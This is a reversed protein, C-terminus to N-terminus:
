RNQAIDNHLGQDSHNQAVPISVHFTTGKEEASDFWIRGGHDEVVKKVIYLGVGSGTTIKRTANAARFFRDFIKSQEAAPIGIGSDKVEFQIITNVKMASVHVTSGPKSYKIANDILNQFVIRIKDPDVEAFLTDKQIGSTDVTIHLSEAQPKLDKLTEAIITHLNTKTFDYRTKDQNLIDIDLLDNIISIVRDNTSAMQDLIEKQENNIPGIEGKLMMDMSWKIGSLPTRLQHAAVSIFESKKEDLLKLDEYAEQLEKTREEVKAELSQNLKELEETKLQVQQELEEKSLRSIWDHFGLVREPIIKLVTSTLEANYTRKLEGFIDEFVGRTVKQGISLEITNYLANVLYTFSKTVSDLPFDVANPIVQKDILEFSIEDGEQRIKALFSDNHTNRLTKNLKQVGISDAIYKALRAVFLEYLKITRARRDLFVLQFESDLENIRIQQRIAERLSEKTYETGGRAPQNAVIFAEWSLYLNIYIVDQGNHHKRKLRNFQYLYNEIADPNHSIGALYSFLRDVETVKQPTDKGFLHTLWNGSM